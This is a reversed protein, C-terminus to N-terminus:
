GGSSLVAEEIGKVFPLTAIERIQSRTAKGEVFNMPGVATKDIQMQNALVATEADSPATYFHVVIAYPEQRDAFTGKIKGAPDIPDVAVVAADNHLTTLAPVAAAPLYAQFRNDGLPDFLLIGAEEFQQALSADLTTALTLIVYAGDQDALMTAVEHPLYSQDVATPGCATLWVLAFLISLLATIPKM